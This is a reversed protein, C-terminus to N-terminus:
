ARVLMETGIVTGQVRASVLVDLVAADLAVVAAMDVVLRDPFDAFCRWLVPELQFASQGRFDGSAEVVCDSAEPPSVVNVQASTSLRPSKGVREVPKQMFRRSCAQPCAVPPIPLGGGPRVTALDPPVSAM